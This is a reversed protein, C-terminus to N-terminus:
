LVMLVRTHGSLERYLNDLQEQSHVYVTVTLSVYTGQKSPRHQIADDRLNPVHRAVIEVVLAAFDDSAQGMVKLPFDCPFQLLPPDTTTSM